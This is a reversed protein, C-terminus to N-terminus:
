ERTGGRHGAELRGEEQEWGLSVIGATRRIKNHKGTGTDGKSAGKTRRSCLLCTKM